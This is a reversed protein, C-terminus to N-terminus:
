PSVIYETLGATVTKDEFSISGADDSTVRSAVGNKLV